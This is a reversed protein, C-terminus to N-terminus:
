IDEALRRIQAPNLLTLRQQNTSVWGENEWQTLTRSVTHVTAGCMDAIDKRSLPFDIQSSEDGQGGKAALRLITHAIRREVRQTNSERLRIEIDRLRAAAVKLINIAIQPHREILGRLAAEAWSIEVCDVAATAQAPYRQGSFLGMTGYTEGPGIFRVLLQGGDADSQAIRVRGSLVAHARECPQDQEFIIAGKSWHRVSAFRIADARGHESVDRFLETDALDQPAISNPLQSM